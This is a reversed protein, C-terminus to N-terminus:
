GNHLAEILYKDRQSSYSVDASNFLVIDTKLFLFMILNIKEIESAHLIFFYFNVIGPTWIDRSNFVIRTQNHFETPNWM